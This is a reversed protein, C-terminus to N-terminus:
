LLELPSLRNQFLEKLNWQKLDTLEMISSKEELPEIDAFTIPVDGAQMPMFNLEAKINLLDEIISIFYALSIPKNNGINFVEFPAVGSSFKSKRNPLPSETLRFIGEVIDDIYTFDRKMKGNNFVDISHGNTILKTFKYYAMDPRGFPGYVTFFRLGTMPISYLHSYSHALLENSKKTAAYLSIPSDTIHSTSFPQKKNIGYVSSSSAFIM